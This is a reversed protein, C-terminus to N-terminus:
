SPSINLWYGRGRVNKIYLSGNGPLRSRVRSILKRLGADDYSYSQSSTEMDDNDSSSWVAEILAENPVVSPSEKYLKQLLRFEHPSLPPSLLVGDIWIHSGDFYLGKEPVSELVATERKGVEPPNQEINQQYAFDVLTNTIDEHSILPDDTRRVHHYILSQCLRLLTRPSNDSAKVLRDVVTGKAGTTCLDELRTYVNESYYSIRQQIVDQLAQKDWSITQVCLRDAPLTTIRQLEQGVPKSLFFKFALHPMNLLPKEGVLPKLLAVATDPGLTTEDVRDVLIYVSQYKQSLSRGLKVILDSLFSLTELPSLAAWELLLPEVELIRKLKILSLPDAFEAAYGMLLERDTDLVEDFYTAPIEEAIARMIARTIVQIHYRVTLKSLDYNILELLPNFDYYHVPLARRRLEAYTCEYSVMARTATKGGGRDAMLFATQPRGPDGLIENLYPRDVYFNHLYPREQDAEYVAFPDDMFHFKELWRGLRRRFPKGLVESM